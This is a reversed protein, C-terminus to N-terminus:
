LIVAEALVCHAARIRERRRSAALVRVLTRSTVYALRRPSPSPLPLAPSKRAYSRSGVVQRYV